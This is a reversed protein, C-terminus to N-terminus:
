SRTSHQLRQLAQPLTAALHPKSSSLFKTAEAETAFLKIPQKFIGAMANAMFNLVVKDSSGYVITINYNPHRFMAETVKRIELLNTPLSKLQSFNGLIVGQGEECSDLFSVIKTVADSIDQSSYHGTVTQYMVSNPILTEVTYPM